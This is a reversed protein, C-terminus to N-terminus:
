SQSPEFFLQELDLAAQLAKEADEMDARTWQLMNDLKSSYSKLFINKTCPLIYAGAGDQRIIEKRKVPFIANKYRRNTSRDLLCLNGIRHLDQEGYDSGDFQEWVQQYFARFAEQDFGGQLLQCLNSYLGHLAAELVLTGHVQEFIAQPKGSLFEWLRWLWLRQTNETTPMDSHASRIHEIDWDAKKFEDFHFRGAHQLVTVINFWLLCCREKDNDKSYSLNQLNTELHEEITALLQAEFQDKHPVKSWDLIDELHVEGIRDTLLFGIYHYLRQDDYWDKFRLFYQKIQQWNKELDSNKAFFHNFTLFIYLPDERPIDVANEESKNIDQAVLDFIFEIRQELEQEENALFYWFQDEQLQNEIQEWELAIKHHLLLQSPTLQEGKDGLFLAKVLEANTLRIKGSNLRKFAEQADAQPTLGCWIVKTSELLINEFLPLAAQHAPLKFFQHMTTYAVAMHHFDINQEKLNESLELQINQLFTLSQPRTEYELSFTSNIQSNAFQQQLYQLLLFLTTMRQQGDVLEYSQHQHSPTMKLREDSAVLLQVVIPQLCYMGGKSVQSSHAFEYLDQLLEWVNRATWRYGRQYSPVLFHYSADLEGIAKLDLM